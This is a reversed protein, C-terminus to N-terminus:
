FFIAIYDQLTQIDKISIYLFINDSKFTYECIEESSFEQSLFNIQFNTDNIQLIDNVKRYLLIKKKQNNLITNTLNSFPIYPLIYHNIIETPIQECPLM